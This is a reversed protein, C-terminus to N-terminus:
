ARTKGRQAIGDARASASKVKGGSKMGGLMKSLKPNQERIGKGYSHAAKDARDKSPTPKVGRTERQMESSEARAKNAELATDLEKQQRANRMAGTMFSMREKLQEPSYQTSGKASDEAMMKDAKDLDRQQRSRIAKDTPFGSKKTM